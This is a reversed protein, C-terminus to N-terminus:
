VVGQALMSDAVKIFGGINAGTVYNIFGDSGWQDHALMLAYVIDFDGDTASATKKQEEAFTGVTVTFLLAVFLTLNYVLKM